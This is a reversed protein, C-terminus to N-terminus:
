IADIYFSYLTNTYGIMFTGNYRILGEPEGKLGAKRLNVLLEEEHTITNVVIFALSQNKSPVGSILVIRDHYFLHCQNSSGSPQLNLSFDDLNDTFNITVEKNHIDPVEYKAYGYAGNTGNKEYKIWLYNNENDLIGETWTGFDNLSITQVLNISYSNIDTIDECQIRYAFLKTSGKIQYGSSIYLIPFYDNSDYKQTGFNLTNSHITSHTQSAPINITGIIKKDKLNYLTIYKNSDYGQVFIDEYCTAGQVNGPEPQLSMYSNASYKVNSTYVTEDEFEKNCSSLMLTLSLIFLSQKGVKYICYNRM